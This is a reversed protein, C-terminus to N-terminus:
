RATAVQEYATRLLEDARKRETNDVITELLCARGQYTFPVVNKIIPVREGRATLLVCEANEITQHLDTFPGIGGADPCIFRHCSQNQIQDRATGIMRATAPNLDIIQHTEADIILIGERVSSFIQNLYSRNGALDEGARKREIARKIKHALDAFQARIDGGKQVYSDVGCNIAEIVVEERGRGTFLIFPIDGYNSRVQQLLGIGDMEPMQYDSIIADFKDRCLLNLAASASDVPVVSFEGSGELFLKGIDLLDPEDDVYLLSYMIM